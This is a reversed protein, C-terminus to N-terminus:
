ILFTTVLCAVEGETNTYGVFTPYTGNSVSVATVNAGTPLDTVAGLAGAATGARAPVFAAEVRAYDWGALGTLAAEDALTSLGTDVSHVFVEDAGLAAAEQGPLLAPEWRFVPGERITLQLAAPRRGVEVGDVQAVAVWSRLPYRGPAVTVTFPEVSGTAVLPDCGVLRGTPLVVDGLPVMLLGQDRAQGPLAPADVLM